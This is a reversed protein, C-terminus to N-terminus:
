KGRPGGKPKRPITSLACQALRELPFVFFREGSLAPLTRFTRSRQFFDRRVARPGFAGDSATIRARHAVRHSAGADVLVPNPHQVSPPAHILHPGRRLLCFFCLFVASAVALSYAAKGCLCTIAAALSAWIGPVCVVANTPLGSLFEHGCFAGAACWVVAVMLRALSFQFRRSMRANYGIAFCSARARMGELGQELKTLILERFPECANAPGPSVRHDPKAPEADGAAV